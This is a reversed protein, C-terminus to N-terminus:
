GGLRVMIDAYDGNRQCQNLLQDTVRVLKKGNGAFWADQARDRDYMERARPHLDEYAKDLGHWFVGDMEIYTDISKVYFDVLWSKPGGHQIPVQQEVDHEGFREVLLRKLAAEPKSLAADGIKAILGRYGAQGGKVVNELKRFKSGNCLPNDVGYRERYTEVKKEKISGVKSPHDEGHRELMTQKFKANSTSTQVSPATAGTRQLRTAIMKDGAGQVQSSYEVGYRELKTAKWQAALKGSSRSKKNCPKSCFTLADSLSHAHKHGLQYEKGCEDCTFVDKHRVQVTNWRRNVYTEEITRVYM